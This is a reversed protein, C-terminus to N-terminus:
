LDDTQIILRSEAIRLNSDFYARMPSIERLARLASVERDFYERNFKFLQFYDLKFNMLLLTKLLVPFLVLMKIGIM